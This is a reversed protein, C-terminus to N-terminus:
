LLLQLSELALAKVKIVDAVVLQEPLRNKMYIMTEVDAEAGWPIGLCFQFMPDGDILGEAILQKAFRIGQIM